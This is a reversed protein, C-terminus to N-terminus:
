LASFHFLKRQGSTLMWFVRKNRIRTKYKYLNSKFYQINDCQLNYADDISMIRISSAGIGREDNKTLIHFRLWKVILNQRLVVGSSAGLGSATQKCNCPSAYFAKRLHGQFLLLFIELLFSTREESYRYTM